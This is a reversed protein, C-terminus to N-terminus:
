RSFIWTGADDPDFPRNDIELIKRGIGSPGAVVVEFEFNPLRNGYPALPLQTFVVRATGRYAPTNAAGLAAQETPDAEETETGLYVKFYQAYNGSAILAEANTQDSVDYYIVNNAWIRRISDIPGECLAVTFDCFYAYTTSTQEPGGKGGLDEESVVENIPQAWILQGAVRMSDGYLQAIAVGPASSQVRLDNIRPGVFPPLKTPFLASGALAGVAGGIAAGVTPAGVLGGVYAGVVQGAITLAQQGM